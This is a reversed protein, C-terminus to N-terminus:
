SFPQSIKYPYLTQGYTSVDTHIHEYIVFIHFQRVLYGSFYSVVHNNTNANPQGFAEKVQDASYNLTIVANFTATLRNVDVACFSM